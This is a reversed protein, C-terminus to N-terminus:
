DMPIAKLAAALAEVLKLAEERSLVRSYSNAPLMALSRRLAEVDHPNTLDSQGLM